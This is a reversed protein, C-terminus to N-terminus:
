VLDRWLQEVAGEPVPVVRGRGLGQPLAFILRGDRVKKDRYLLPRAEEWSPAPSLATSLGARGILEQLRQVEESSLLGLRRALEAEVAMGRAVAAGHPLTFGSAAELVHGLTHGFNLLARRGTEREDEEVVQAKLTLCREIVTSLEAPDRALLAPLHEELHAFFAADLIAGYKVVEGLAARFQDEPLTTLVEPDVLVLRPQYFAGVLNKGQPLNVAVKGGVASDVQALLTTPVQIFPVGRLYTAALFGAADGVVGGGLALVPSSRELGASVAASYLHALWGLSKAEEGAPLTVLAPNFGATALNERVKEAWLPAVHTDSVILARRGLNLGALAAGLGVLAGPRIIIEYSRAGLEVLM